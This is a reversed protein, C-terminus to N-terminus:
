NDRSGSEQWTGSLYVCLLTEYKDESSPKNCYGVKPNGMAEILIDSKADLDDTVGYFDFAEELIPRSKCAKVAGVLVSWREEGMTEKTNM